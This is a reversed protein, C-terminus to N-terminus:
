REPFFHGRKLNLSRVGRLTAEHLKSGIQFIEGWASEAVRAFSWAGDPTQYALLQEEKGLWMPKKEFVIKGPWPAFPAKVSPLFVLQSDTELLLEIDDNM